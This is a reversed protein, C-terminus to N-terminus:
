GLARVNGGSSESVDQPVYDSDSRDASRGAVAAVVEGAEGIGEKVKATKRRIRSSTSPGAVRGAHVDPVAVGAHM